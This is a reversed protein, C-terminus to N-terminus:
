SSVDGPLVGEDHPSTEQYCEKMMLLRRTHKVAMASTLSVSHCIASHVGGALLPECHLSLESTSSHEAASPVRVLRGCLAAEPVRTPRSSSLAGSGCLFM